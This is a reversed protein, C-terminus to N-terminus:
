GSGRGAAPIARIVRGAPEDTLLYVAGDPGTRVDRIRADLERFLTEQGVVAGQRVEIRRVCKDKLAGVLLDGQWEPFLDAEYVTMGSPAISPTWHLIPQEMGQWETYPSVRAGSYDLGYTIAPWGYNNGAVLINIEDGGAPGHEHLYVTGDSAVALGQPNRHGFSFVRPAKPFPNDSPVTGDRNVRLVKGLESALAQAAERYDFGDGTTLLLSGDALFAMRGGYHVPTDKVPSVELLTEVQELRDGILRASVVTTANREPDGGAFSLYLRQNAAFEPDLLVDFLGGQGAVYVQPVGGFPESVKGGVSVRRLTGPRETVLLEGDPLFALSWPFTLNAAVTELEYEAALVSPAIVLLMTMALVKM